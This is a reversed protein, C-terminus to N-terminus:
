RGRGRTEREMQSGRGPGRRGGTGAGDRANPSGTDHLREPFFPCRSLVHCVTSLPKFTLFHFIIMINKSM